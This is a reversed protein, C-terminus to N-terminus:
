KLTELEKNYDYQLDEHLKAMADKIRKLQNLYINHLAQTADIVIDSAKIKQCFYILLEVETQAISSYKIHKNTNRLIKRLSKKIYYNNSLNIDEFATNIEVKINEIYSQEDHAQYLLYTLLEKNEKKYKALRLCLAILRTNSSENLENKIENLSSAKM